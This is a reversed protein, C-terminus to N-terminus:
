GSNRILQRQLTCYGLVQAHCKGADCVCACACAHVNEGLCLLSFEESQLM